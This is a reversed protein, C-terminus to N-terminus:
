RTISLQRCSPRGGVRRPGPRTVMVVAGGFGGGTLRAGYVDPDAQALAVLVDIEPLSTEYDDRLSRHSANLLAGFQAADGRRLAEVAALVRQNETVVHRARRCLVPPLRELRDLDAPGADRLYDVGLAAAAAFSERRRTAYDGGAHQHAIGSDVVALDATDPLPISEYVLSRTDLFLAAGPLGVSCVMQDM